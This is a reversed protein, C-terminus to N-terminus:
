FQVKFDVIAHRFMLVKLRPSISLLFEYKTYWDIPGCLSEGDSVTVTVKKKNKVLVEFLINPIL